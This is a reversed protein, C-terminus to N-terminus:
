PLELAASCEAVTVTTDRGWLEEARSGDRSWIIQLGAFTIDTPAFLAEIQAKMEPAADTDVGERIYGAWLAQKAPSLAFYENLHLINILEYRTVIRRTVPLESRLQNILEALLGMSGAAIHAAYGYGNPDTELEVKLESLVVTGM